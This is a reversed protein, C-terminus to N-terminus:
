KGAAPDSPSGSPDRLYVPSLSAPDDADGKRLRDWALQALNGARRTSLSAPLVKWRQGQKRVLKQADASVEGAFTITGSLSDLLEEWTYIDAAQGLRWSSRHFEYVAACIRTRGAEAVAVLKGPRQGVGAAVIHLTNVGVLPIRHGLSLGKAFGLGVRLGTYSGPGIAVGIGDLDEASVGSRQMLGRATPALEVTQTNVAHWGLEAVIDQGNHLALGLWRTATDIALLM